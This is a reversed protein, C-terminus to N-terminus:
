NIIDVPNDQEPAVATINVPTEQIPIGNTFIAVTIGIVFMALTIGVLVKYKKM